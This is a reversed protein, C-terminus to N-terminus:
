QGQHWLRNAPLGIGGRFLQHEELPEITQVVSSLIDAHAHKSKVFQHSREEGFDRYSLLSKCETPKLQIGVRTMM